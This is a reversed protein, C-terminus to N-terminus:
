HVHLAQCQKQPQEYYRGHLCWFSLCQAYALQKIGALQVAHMSIPPSGLHLVLLICTPLMCVLQYSPGCLLAHVVHVASVMRVASAWCVAGMVHAASVMHIAPLMAGRKFEWQLCASMLSVAAACVGEDEGRAAAGSLAAQRALGVAATFFSRLHHEQLSLMMLLLMSLLLVLLM